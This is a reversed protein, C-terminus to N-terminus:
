RDREFSLVPVQAQELAKQLDDWAALVAAETEDPANGRASLTIRFTTDPGFRKARSKIYVEPHKGAVERLLGALTSEDGCDVVARWEGFCGAGFLASLVPALAHEVIDFLEEPVGPLSVLTCGDLELLVGPAAGVQNALPRAGEPLRAMKIRPAAMAASEVLGERTLRAYTEAVLALAEPEASLPRGLADALAQLTLDDDTPGLGGITVILRTQRALASHLAQAIADPEDRVQTVQRVLAGLGNLHRRLWHSNTDLVDGQLIENGIVMIEVPIAM